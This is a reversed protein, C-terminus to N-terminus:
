ETSSKAQGTSSVPSDLTERSFPFGIGKYPERGECPRRRSERKRPFSLSHLM